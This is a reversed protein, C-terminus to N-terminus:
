IVNFIPTIMKQM